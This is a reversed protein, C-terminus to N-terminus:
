IHAFSSPALATVMAVAGANPGDQKQGREEKLLSNPSHAPLLDTASGYDVHWGLWSGLSGLLGRGLRFGYPGSVLLALPPPLFAISDVDVLHQLLHVRVSSNGGLGHGDHVGEHVVDELADGGLGATQCVVVTPRGDGASFDLGSDTEEEGSLQGLVGHRLAGLSHGLVGGGLLNTVLDLGLLPGKCPGVRECFNQDCEM